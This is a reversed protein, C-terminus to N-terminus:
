LTKRFTARDGSPCGRMNKRIDIEGNKETVYSDDPIDKTVLIDSNIFTGTGIKVGPAFSTHIGMRCGSGFIAGLKVRGTLISENKVMSKIEAEDLRLNGTVSGAGFSVNNGVVSDGIYSSHTWVDNAVVSRAVETNYGIVCNKGVSSERVLANNGIITGEGIVCPGVVSAHAFIRVNAGLVVSGEVVASKHVEATKHIIPEKHSPLMHPLLDLLHWPYKVAQWKGIYPVAKYEHTKFLESLAREYGDDTGAKQKKLSDLLAKPDAHVHAVLNILDSPESGTKPKEIIKEIKGRRVTLYGGPFYKKVKRALILGGDKLKMGRERLLKYADSDIVDNASVILVPGKSIKSLASLLAGRMGLDLDKQEIITNKPFLKKAENKNHSGVVLTIDKFGAEKLRAMQTEILTTGAISFFSKETLPWFRTSRGALILLAHM